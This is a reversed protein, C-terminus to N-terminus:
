KSFDWFYVYVKGSNGKYTTLLKCGLKIRKLYGIKYNSNYILTKAPPKYNNLFIILQERNFNSLLTRHNVSNLEAMSCTGKFKEINM